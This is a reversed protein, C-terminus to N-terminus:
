KGFGLYANGLICAYTRQIGIIKRNRHGSTLETIYVNNTKPDACLCILFVCVFLGVHM